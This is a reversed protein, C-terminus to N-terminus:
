VGSPEAQKCGSEGKIEDHYEYTYINIGDVTEKKDANEGTTAYNNFVTVHGISKDANFHVLLDISKEDTVPILEALALVTKADM